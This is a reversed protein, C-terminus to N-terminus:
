LEGQEVRSKNNKEIIKTITRSKASAIRSRSNLDLPRSSSVELSLGAMTDEINKIRTTMIVINIIM